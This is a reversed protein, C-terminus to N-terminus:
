RFRRFNLVAVLTSDTSTRWMQRLLDCPFQFLWMSPLIYCSHEHIKAAIISPSRNTSSILSWALGVRRDPIWAQEDCRAGLCEHESMRM